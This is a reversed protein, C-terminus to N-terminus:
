PREGGSRGAAMDRALEVYGIQVTAAETAEAAQRAAALHQRTSTVLQDHAADEAWDHAPEPEPTHTTM